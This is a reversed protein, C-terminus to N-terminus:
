VNRRDSPRHYQRRQVTRMHRLRAQGRQECDSLSECMMVGPQEINFQRAACEEIYDSMRPINTIFARGM